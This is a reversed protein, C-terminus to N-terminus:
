ELGFRRWARTATTLKAVNISPKIPRIPGNLSGELGTKGGRRWAAQIMSHAKCPHTANPMSAEMLAPTLPAPNPSPLLMNLLITKKKPRSSVMVWQALVMTRGTTSSVTNPPGWSSRHASLHARAAQKPTNDHHLNLTSTSAKTPTTTRLLSM